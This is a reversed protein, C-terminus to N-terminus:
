LAAFPSCRRRGDRACDEGAFIILSFPLLLRRCCRLPTIAFAGRRAFVGDIVRSCARMPPPSFRFYDIIAARRRCFRGPPLRCRTDAHFFAAAFSACLFQAYVRMAAVRAAHAACAAAACASARWPSMDKFLSLYRMRAGSM